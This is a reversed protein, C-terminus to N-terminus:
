FINQHIEAYKRMINIYFNIKNEEYLSGTIKTCLYIINNIIIKIRKKNFEKKSDKYKEYLKENYCILKDIDSKIKLLLNKSENIKFPHGFLLRYTSIISVYGIDKLIGKKTILQKFFIYQNQLIVVENDDDEDKYVFLFEFASNSDYHIGENIINNTIIQNDTKSKNIKNSNRRKKINQKNIKNEINNINDSKFTNFAKDLDDNSKSLKMIKVKNSSKIENDFDKFIIKNNNKYVIIKLRKKMEKKEYIYGIEEFHFEIESLKNYFLITGLSKNSEVPEFVIFYIETCIIYLIKDYLKYDKIQNIRYFNIKNSNRLFDNIHYIHNKDYEGFYIYIKFQECDKIHHLFFKINSVIEELTIQCDSIHKIQFVYNLKSSLCLFYNRYDYMTPKIFNSIIQVYPREGDIFEISLTIEDEFPNLSTEEYILIIFNLNLKDSDHLVKANMKLYDNYENNIKTELTEIFLEYDNKPVEIPICDKYNSYEDEM